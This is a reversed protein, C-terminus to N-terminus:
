SAKLMEAASYERCGSIKGYSPFFLYWNSWFLSVPCGDDSVNSKLIVCM